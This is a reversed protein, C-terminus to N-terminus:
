FSAGIYFRVLNINPEKIARKIDEKQDESDYAYPSSVYDNKIDSQVPVSIGVWDCGLTFNQWQWQNGIQFNFALSTGDFERTVDYAPGNISDYFYKYEFKRLDVGSRWYFSNSAYRKYHVGFSGSKVQSGSNFYASGSTTAGATVELFLLQDPRLFKGLQLGLAPQLSPGIGALQTTIQFSKDRRNHSSSSDYVASENRGEAGDLQALANAGIMLCSAAGIFFWKM